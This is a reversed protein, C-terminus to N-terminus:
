LETARAVYMPPQTQNLMFFLPLRANIRLVGPQSQPLWPVRAQGKQLWVASRGKVTKM